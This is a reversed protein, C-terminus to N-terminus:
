KQDSRRPAMKPRGRRNMPRASVGPARSANSNITEATGTITAPRSSLIVPSFSASREIVTIPQAVSM